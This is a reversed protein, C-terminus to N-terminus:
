ISNQFLHHTIFHNQPKFPLSPATLVRSHHGIDERYYCVSFQAKSGLGDQLLIDEMSNLLEPGYLAHTQLPYSVAPLCCTVGPYVRPCVESYYDCSGYNKTRLQSLQQLDTTLYLESSFRVLQTATDSGYFEYQFKM